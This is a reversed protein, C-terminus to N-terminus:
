DKRQKSVHQTSRLTNALNELSQALQENKSQKQCSQIAGFTSENLEVLPKQDASSTVHESLPLQSANLNLRVTVKNVRIFTAAAQQKSADASSSPRKQNQNLFEVLSLQHQKILTANAPNDCTIILKGELESAPTQGSLATQESLATKGSLATPQWAELQTTEACSRSIQGQEQAQALWQLWHPTLKVLVAQSENLSRHLPLRQVIEAVTKTRFNKFM